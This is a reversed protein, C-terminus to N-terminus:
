RVAVGSLESEVNKIAFGNRYRLDVSAIQSLDFDSQNLLVKVFRSLNEFADEKGASMQITENLILNWSGRESLSLETMRLDEPLLLQNLALYQQMVQIQSGEPGTLQPLLQNVAPSTPVFVKGTNSLYGDEGWRAIAKEENIALSLTDPWIRKVSAFEVWSMKELENKIGTTDLNFFGTGMFGSLVHSVESETVQQWQNEIRVKTMPRNVYNAIDEKNAAASGFIGLVILVTVVLRGARANVPKLPQDNLSFNRKEARMEGRVQQRVKAM